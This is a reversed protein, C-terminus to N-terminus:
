IKKYASDLVNSIKNKVTGYRKSRMIDFNSNVEIVRVKSDTISIFVDAKGYKKAIQYKDNTKIVEGLAILDDTDNTKIQDVQISMVGKNIDKSCSKCWMRKKDHIYRYKNCNDCKEFKM